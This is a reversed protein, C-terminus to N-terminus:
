SSNVQRTTRKCEAGHRCQSLSDHGEVLSLVVKSFEGLFLRLSVGELELVGAIAGEDDLLSKSRATARDRGIRLFGYSRALTTLDLHDVVSAAFVRAFEGLYDGHAAIGGVFVTRRYMLPSM